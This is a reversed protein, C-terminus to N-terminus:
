VPRRLRLPATRRRGGPQMSRARQMQLSTPAHHGRHRAPPSNPNDGRRQRADQERRRHHSDRAGLDPFEETKLREFEETAARSEVTDSGEVLPCIVFAQRGAEIEARMTAFAERRQIPSLWKTVIPTRGPPLEDIITLDLDGYATLALSRPIPTASM